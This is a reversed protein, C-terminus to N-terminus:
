KAIIGRMSLPHVPGTTLANDELELPRVVIPEVKNSQLYSLKKGHPLGKSTPKTGTNHVSHNADNCTIVHMFNSLFAQVNM